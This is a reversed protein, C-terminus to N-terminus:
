VSEHRPPALPPPMVRGPRREREQQQLFITYIYQMSKNNYIHKERLCTYTYMTWVSCVLFGCADSSRRPQVPAGFPAKKTGYGWDNVVLQSISGDGEKEKEEQGEQPIPPSLSTPPPAM